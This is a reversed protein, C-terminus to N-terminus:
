ERRHAIAREWRAKIFPYLGAWSDPLVVLGPILLFIGPRELHGAGIAVLVSTTLSLGFLLGTFHLGVFAWTPVLREQRVRRVPTRTPRSPGPTPASPPPLSAGALAIRYALHLLRFRDAADADQNVDPHDRLAALRFARKITAEDAGFPVGLLACAQVYTVPGNRQQQM